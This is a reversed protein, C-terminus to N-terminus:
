VALSIAVSSLFAPIGTSDAVETLSKPMSVVAALYLGALSCVARILLAAPRAWRTLVKPCTVLFAVLNCLVLM